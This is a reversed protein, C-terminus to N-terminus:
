HGHVQLYASFGEPDPALGMCCERVKRASGPHLVRGDQDDARRWHLYAGTASTRIPRRRRRFERGLVTSSHFLPLTQDMSTYFLRTGQFRTMRDLLLRCGLCVHSM